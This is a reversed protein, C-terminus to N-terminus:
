GSWQGEYWRCGIVCVCGCVCRRAVSICSPLGGVFDGHFECIVGCLSRCVFLYKLDAKGVQIYWKSSYYVGCLSEKEDGVLLFVDVLNECCFGSM